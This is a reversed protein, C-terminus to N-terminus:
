WDETFRHAGLGVIDFEDRDGVAEIGLFQLAQDIAEAEIAGSARRGMVLEYHDDVAGPWNTTFRPGFAVAGDLWGVAAQTGTGGHYEAHVYVVPATLSAEAALDAVPRRLEYFGLVPDHAEDVGLASMVADKLPLLGLPMGDPAHLLVPRGVRAIPEPWDPTGRVILAELFYAM